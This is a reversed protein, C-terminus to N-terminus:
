QENNIVCIIESKMIEKVVCIAFTCIHIPYYWVLTKQVSKQRLGSM